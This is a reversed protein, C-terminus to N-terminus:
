HKCAVLVSLKGAQMQFLHFVECYSMSAEVVDFKSMSLPFSEPWVATSFPLRLSLPYRM